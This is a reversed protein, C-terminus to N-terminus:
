RRRTSPTASCPDCSRAGTPSSASPGTAAPVWKRGRGASSPRCAAPAPLRPQQRPIWGKFPLHMHLCLPYCVPIMCQSLPGQVAALPQRGLDLAAVVCVVPGPEHIGHEGMLALICALFRM